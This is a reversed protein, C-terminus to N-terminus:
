SRKVLPLTVRAPLMGAQESAGSTRHGHAVALLILDHARGGFNDAQKDIFSTIAGSAILTCFM